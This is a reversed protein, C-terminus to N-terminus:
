GNTQNEPQFFIAGCIPEIITFGPPLFTLAHQSLAEVVEDYRASAPVTVTGVIFPKLNPFSAKACWPRIAETM